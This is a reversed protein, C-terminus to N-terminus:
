LADSSFLDCSKLVERVDCNQARKKDDLAKIAHQNEYFTATTCALQERSWLVILCWTLYSRSTSM